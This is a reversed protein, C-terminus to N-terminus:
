AIPSLVYEEFATGWRSTLTEGYEWPLADMDAMKDLVISEIYKVAGILRIKQQSHRIKNFIISQLIPNTIRYIVFMCKAIDKLEAKSAYVRGKIGRYLKAIEKVANFKGNEVEEFNSVVSDLTTSDVAEVAGNLEQERAAVEEAKAISEAARAEKEAKKQELYANWNNLAIVKEENTHHLVTLKRGEKQLLDAEILDNILIKFYALSISSTKDFKIRGGEVEKIKYHYSKYRAYLRNVSRKIVMDDDTNKICYSLVSKMYFIKNISCDLDNIISTQVENFMVPYVAEKKSRRNIFRTITNSM